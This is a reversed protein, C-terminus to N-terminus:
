GYINCFKLIMKRVTFSYGLDLPFVLSKEYDETMEDFETSQERFIPLGQGNATTVIVNGQYGEVEVIIMEPIGCQIEEETPKVIDVVVAKSGNLVGAKSCLNKRIIVPCGVALELDYMGNKLVTIEEPLFQTHLM